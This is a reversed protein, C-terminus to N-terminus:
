FMVKNLSTFIGKVLTLVAVVSQDDRVTEGPVPLYQVNKSDLRFNDYYIDSTIDGKIWNLNNRAM